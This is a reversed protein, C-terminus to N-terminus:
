AQHDQQLTGDETGIRKLWKICYAKRRKPDILTGPNEAMDRLGHLLAGRKRMSKLIVILNHAATFKYQPELARSNIIPNIDPRSKGRRAWEPGRRIMWLDIHSQGIKM